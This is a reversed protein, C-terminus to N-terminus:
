EGGPHHEHTHWLSEVVLAERVRAVTTPGATEAILVKEVGPALHFYRDSWRAEPAEMETYVYLAPRRATLSVRFRRGSSDEKGVRVSIRPDRLVMNKPRAFHALNSTVEEGDISLSAFLLCEELPLGELRVTHVARSGNAPTRVNRSGEALLKGETSYVTWSLAASRAKPLDSTVHCEVTAREGDEVLSLMVPAFFSRAYYHLGKWRKFYDLSSWSNGPWTDNHQWYLAGMTRPMLRRWHEVAYKIAMAQLIQTVHLTREFTNPLRFWDLMYTMILTNGIASRQHAEMVTSAVHRDEPDTFARTTVPEPFSQFGFESVFRHKTTRYWEFPQKMHWVDWLHADGCSENRHDKRDGIPSHPSCPWYDRQPDLEGVVAPLLEDFLRGYEEWDMHHDTWEDNVLGQELENNGCWLALCAHHRIRRVNQRAEEEVNAMWEGDFTPYMSCAFMFDQWVCIGLEDCLDYFVDAEYIGGGWVRLMNMNADRAAEVLARYDGARLRTVIADAPIWNAGKAFFPRGNCTFQFSEGFEDKHRDLRLERLGIRREDSDLTKGDGYLLTTVVTHLPQEGMGAPWWLRPKKVTAKITAGGKRLPSEGEAVTEGDILVEVRLRGGKTPHAVAARISLDARGKAHDQLIHIDDLRSAEGLVLRVPKWIGASVLVPGWDWGFSCPMKRVYARGPVELPGAWSHLHTQAQREEILPLPSRFTVRLDNRGPRLKDGVPFEYRRFMNEGEGVVLGNLEVTALTDLGDFVLAAAPNPADIHFSREYIWEERALPLLDRENTRFFPDPIAGARLLDEHFCGPVIAPYHDGTAPRRLTWEGTLDITNM